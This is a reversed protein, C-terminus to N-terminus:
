LEYTTIRRQWAFTYILVGFLIVLFMASAVTSGMTSSGAQLQNGFFSRYFLTGMIDSAYDPGALAGKVTYILDFANFNAVYTVITIIGLM